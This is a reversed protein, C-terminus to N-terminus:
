GSINRGQFLFVGRIHVLSVFVDEQVFEDSLGAVGGFEAGLEEVDEEGAAVGGGAEEAPGEVGQHAVRLDVGLEAGDDEVAEAGVGLRVVDGEGVEFGQGVELVDEVLDEAQVGVNGDVGAAADAGGCEGASPAGVAVGGDVDALALFDVVKHVHHVVPLIDPALIHLFKLRLPPLPLLDAPLVQRKIAPRPDTQALLERQRLRPIHRDPQHLPKVAQNILILPHLRPMQQTHRSTRIPTPDPQMLRFVLFPSFACRAPVLTARMQLCGDSVSQVNVGIDQGLLYLALWGSNRM